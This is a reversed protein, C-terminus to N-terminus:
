KKTDVRAEVVLPEQARLQEVAEAEAELLL